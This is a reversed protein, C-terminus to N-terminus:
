GGIVCTEPTIGRPAHVQDSLAVSCLVAHADKLNMVHLTASEASCSPGGIALVGVTNSSALAPSKRRYRVPRPATCVATITAAM